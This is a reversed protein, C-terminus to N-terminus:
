PRLIKLHYEAVPSLLPPAEGSLKVVYDGAALDACALNVVVAGYTNRKLNPVTEVLHHDPAYVELRFSRFRSEPPLESWIMLHRTGAPVTVENSTGVGRTAELMVFPVNAQTAAQQGVKKELEARLSQETGLKAALQERERRLGPFRVSFTWIVVGALVVAAVSTIAFGPLLWWGRMTEAGANSRELLRRNAADRVGAIFRETAQVKEFCEDCSFFHEEFAREEEPSLQHRVYSEFLAEDQAHECTM